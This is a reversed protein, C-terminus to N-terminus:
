ILPLGIYEAPIRLFVDGFNNCEPSLVALSLFACVNVCLVVCIYIYSDKRNELHVGCGVQQQQHDSYFQPQQQQLQQQLQQQNLLQQQHQQLGKTSSNSGSSAGSNTSNANSNNRNFDVVDTRARPGPEVPSRGASYGANEGGNNNSGSGSGGFNQGGRGYM